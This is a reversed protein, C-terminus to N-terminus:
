PSSCNHEGAATPALTTAEELARRAGEKDGRATRADARLALAIAPPPMDKMVLRAVDM